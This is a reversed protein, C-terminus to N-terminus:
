NKLYAYHKDYYKQYEGSKVDKWWNANQKYWEITLRMGEEFSYLPKWGLEREIKTSDLAYHRDHAPRDPVQKILSEPKNLNKLILHTIEKNPKENHASINYIEGVKGKHL